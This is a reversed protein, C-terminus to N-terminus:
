ATGVAAQCLRVLRVAQESLGQRYVKPHSTYFLLMIRLAFRHPRPDPLVSFARYARAFLLAARERFAKASGYPRVLNLDGHEDDEGQDIFSDLLVHLAAVEPFHARYASVAASDRSAALEYLPGYIHFQSGCAAAFEYWSLTGAGVAAARQLYWALAEDERRAPSVHTLTQMQGYLSGAEAFRALIAPTPHLRALSSQADAVLSTLYGGDDGSPGDRYYARPARQPDLADAIAEHLTPYFRPDREPHRDCINDLYDYIAELPVVTDLYRQAPEGRLFTAYIAAGAVHYAKADLGALAQARLSEDPIRLARARLRLLRERAAPVVRTLFALLEVCGYVGDAFLFRRRAGSRLVAAIASRIEDDLTM